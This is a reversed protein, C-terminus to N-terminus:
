IWQLDYHLYLIIDLAVYMSVIAIIQFIIGLIINKLTFIQKLLYIHEKMFYYNTLCFCWSFDTGRVGSQICKLPQNNLGGGRSTIEKRWM